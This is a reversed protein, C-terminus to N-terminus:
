DKCEKKKQLAGGIKCDPCPFDTVRIRKPIKVKRELDCNKCCCCYIGATVAGIGLVSFTSALAAILTVNSSNTNSKNTSTDESKRESSSSNGSNTGNSSNSSNGTNTNSISDCSIAGNVQKQSTANANSPNCELYCQKNDNQVLCKSNCYSGCNTDYYCILPNM